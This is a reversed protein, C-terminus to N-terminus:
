IVLPKMMADVIQEMPKVLRRVQRLERDIRCVHLYTPRHNPSQLLSIEADELLEGYLTM